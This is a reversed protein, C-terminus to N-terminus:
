SYDLFSMPLGLFLRPVICSRDLFSGPVIWSCGLFLEPVVRSCNLFLEPVLNVKVEFNRVDAGTCEHCLLFLIFPLLTRRHSNSKIKLFELLLLCTHWSLIFKQREPEQVQTM